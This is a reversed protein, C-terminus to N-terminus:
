YIRSGSLLDLASAGKVAPWVLKAQSVETSAGRHM